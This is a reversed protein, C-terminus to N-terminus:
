TKTAYQSEMTKNAEEAAQQSRVKDESIDVRIGALNTRFTLARQWQRAADEEIRGSEIDLWLDRWEFNLVRCEDSAVALKATNTADNSTMEFVTLCIVLAGLIGTLLFGYPATISSMFPIVVLAEVLVLALIVFRIVIHRKRYKDALKSYYRSYYESNSFDVWISNRTVDTVTDM